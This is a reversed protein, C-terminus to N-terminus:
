SPLGGERSVSLVVRAIAEVDEAGLGQHSPIQFSTTHIRDAVPFAQIGYRDAWFPQRSLNGTGVPRVEIGAARLAEAVRERHDRSAALAAFSISSVEARDNRQHHFGPAAAFRGRYAAHNTVRRSVIDDLRRMQSLGIRAGLDSGRVNYGPVYFTFPRNFPIVGREAALEAERAPALDKAWGHARLMRLVEDLRDDDTCVMGGEITSVHHGYFFSFSSMEGFTGVKRGDYRSGHAGCCDELLVFGYKRQLDLVPALQIPVGLMHVVVVAAPEHEEVLAGLLRPDIGFTGDEVDCLVPEFGLQIAPAVTTPWAVAPAVVKRNTGRPSESLAAYMLLNASSGSNVYLAHRTGVWRAWAREFELVLPGQTLWPDTRLWEILEAIDGRDITAEALKYRLPHSV